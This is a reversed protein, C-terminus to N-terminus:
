SPANVAASDCQVNSGFSGARTLMGVPAPFVAIAIAIGYIIGLAKAFLISQQGKQQDESEIIPYIQKQVHNQQQKRVPLYILGPVLLLAFSLVPLIM